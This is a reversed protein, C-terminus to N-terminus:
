LGGIVLSISITACTSVVVLVTTNCPRAKTTKIVQRVVVRRM